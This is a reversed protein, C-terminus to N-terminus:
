RPILKEILKFPIILIKILKFKYLRVGVYFWIQKDKRIYKNSWYDIINRNIYKTSMEIEKFITKKDFYIVRSLHGFVAHKFILYDIEHKYENYYENGKIFDLIEFIQSVGDDSKRMTSDDYIRYYYLADNLVFINNATIMCGPFIALDEYRLRKEAFKNKLIVSKRFLKNTPGPNLTILAQKSNLLGYQKFSDKVVKNGVIRNIKCVVIDVNDNMMEMMKKLYNKDIYDDADVFCIYNGKAISLGYNRACGQGQNEQFFYRVKDFKEIIEYSKDCSGDDIVIVEYNHYSQNFISELCQGIYKQANYLPIIISVMDYNNQFKMM